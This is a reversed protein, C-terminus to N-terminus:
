SNIRFLRYFMALCAYCCINISLSAILRKDKSNAYNDLHLLANLDTLKKFASTKNSKMKTLVLWAIYVYEVSCKEMFASLLDPYHKELFIKRDIWGDLVDLRNIDYTYSISDERQRYHVLTHPLVVVTRSDGLIYHTWYHDEFKKGIPFSYKMALEARILKGWAFTELKGTVLREMASLNDLVTVESFYSNAVDEYDPYTYYYNAIVIDADYKIQADVLCQIAHPEITDDSDLYYVYEGTVYKLGENRADSLGGNAKHVVIIRSDKKSYKDCIEGCADPSGDDVLIIQLNKYTQNLVSDICLSLYKEVKYIPIVISVLSSEM